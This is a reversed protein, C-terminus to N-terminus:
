RLRQRRGSALTLSARYKFRCGKTKHRAPPCFWQLQLQVMSTMNTASYRAMRLLENQTAADAQGLLLMDLGLLLGQLPTRLDHVLAATLDDRWRLQENLATTTRHLTAHLEEEFRIMESTFRTVVQPDPASLPFSRRAEQLKALRDPRYSGVVQELLDLVRELIQPDFTWLTDFQRLAEEDAPLQRDQGCLLVSVEASLLLVFWEQRLPDDGRLTVHLESAQSEPPLTGGAFICVQQAVAALARYRETEERWHSSEQFGTFLLAPIHRTLVLDELTHSLHVLTAKSCRLPELLTGFEDRLLQFLSLNM